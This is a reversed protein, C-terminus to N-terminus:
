ATASERKHSGGGLYEIIGLQIGEIANDDRLAIFLLARREMDIPFFGEDNFVEPDSESEIAGRALAGLDQSVLVAAYRADKLEGQLRSEPESDEGRHGWPQLAIEIAYHLAAAGSGTVFDRIKQLTDFQEPNLINLEIKTM